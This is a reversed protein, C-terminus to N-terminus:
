LFEATMGAEPPEIKENRMERTVCGECVDGCTALSWGCPCLPVQEIVYDVVTRMNYTTGVGATAILFERMEEETDFIEAALWHFGSEVVVYGRYKTKLINGLKNKIIM